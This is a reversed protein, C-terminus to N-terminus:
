NPVEGRKQAARRNRCDTLADANDRALRAAEILARLQQPDVAMIADREVELAKIQAIVLELRDLERDIQAQM